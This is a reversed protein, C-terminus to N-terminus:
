SADLFVWLAHRRLVRGLLDMFYGYGGCGNFASARRTGYEWIPDWTKKNILLHLDLPYTTSRQLFHEPRLWPIQEYRFDTKPIPGGKGHILLDYGRKLAFDEIYPMGEWRRPNKDWPERRMIVEVEDLYDFERDPDGMDAILIDVHAGKERLAAAVANPVAQDYERDVAILVKNGAVTKNYGVFGIHSNRNERANALQRAFPMLESLDASRLGVRKLREEESVSNSIGVGDDATDCM